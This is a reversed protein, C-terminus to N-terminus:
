QFIQKLHHKLHVIYDRMVYELNARGEDSPQFGIQVLDQKNLPATRKDEPARSMIHLLHLNYAGWLEILLPWSAENYQQSSVWQNQNYRQFVLGDQIQGRVFRQHNNSASDILHGLIEKASWKGEKLSLAAKEESIEKLQTTATEITILFNELVTQFDDTYENM